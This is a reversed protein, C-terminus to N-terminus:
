YWGSRRAIDPADASVPQPLPPLEDGVAGGGGAAGAMEDIEGGLAVAPPADKVSVTFPLLKM